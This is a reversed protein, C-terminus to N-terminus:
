VHLLRPQPESFPVAEKIFGILGTMVLLCRPVSSSHLELVGPTKHTHTHMHLPTSIPSFPAPAPTPPPPIFGSSIVPCRSTFGQSTCHTHTRSHTLSHTRARTHTYTYVYGLNVFSSRHKTEFRNKKLLVIVSDLAVFIKLWLRFSYVAFFGYM